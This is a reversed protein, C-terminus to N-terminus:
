LFNLNGATIQEEFAAIVPYKVTTHQFGEEVMLPLLLQEHVKAVTGTFVVADETTLDLTYLQHEIFDAFAETILATLGAPLSGQLVQGAVSALEKNPKDTRYIRNIMSPYDVDVLKKAIFDLTERDAIKRFYVKLIRRGLDAASGEDGIAFGLAASKQVLNGGDIKACISGTGLVAVIGNGHGFFATGAGELDSKVHTDADPFVLKLFSHLTNNSKLDLCGTGFFYINAPTLHGIVAQVKKLDTEPSIFAPYLGQTQYHSMHEGDVYLWDTNTAGSDAVLFAM